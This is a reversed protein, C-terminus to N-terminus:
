LEKGMEGSDSYGAVIFAAQHNESLGSRQVRTGTGTNTNTANANANNNGIPIKAILVRWLYFLIDFIILLAWPAITLLGLIIFVRALWSEVYTFEAPLVSYWAM